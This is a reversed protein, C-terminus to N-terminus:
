FGKAVSQKIYVKFDDDPYFSDIQWHYVSNRFLDPNFCM